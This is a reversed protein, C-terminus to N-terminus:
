FPKLAVGPCDVCVGVTVVYEQECRPCYSLSAHFRRVPPGVLLQPDGFQRGTWEWVASRWESEMSSWKDDGEAAFALERLIRATFRRAEEQPMVAAAVALPHFEAVSNKILMAPARIAGVPSLLLALLKERRDALATPNLTRHIRQFAYATNAVLFFFAPLLWLCAFLGLHWSIIPYVGFALCFLLYSNVYLPRVLKRSLLIQRRASKTDLIQRFQDRLNESIMSRLPPRLPGCILLEGFGPLPSALFIRHGFKEVPFISRAPKWAWMFKSRFVFSTEPVWAVCEVFYILWLVLSISLVDSM